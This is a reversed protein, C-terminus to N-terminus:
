ASELAVFLLGDEMDVVYRIRRYGYKEKYYKPKYVGCLDVLLTHYGFTQLREYLEQLTLTYLKNNLVFM